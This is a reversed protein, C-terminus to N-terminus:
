AVRPDATLTSIHATTGHITPVFSGNSDIGGLDDRERWSVHSVEYRTDGLRVIDGAAPLAAFTFTGCDEFDFILSAKIVRVV